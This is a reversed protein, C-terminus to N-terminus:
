RHHRKHKRKGRCGPQMVPKASATKGNQGAFRVNARNVRGCLNRSNVILGKKAGQMRLLVKSIPADPADEVSARIGGHVSDIRTAVEVDVLGHLDFVLDPLKHNSSRLYVPGQLPEDLLPTWARIYGYRAAKPCNKAAFQVRTCITRIHAQDLFASSPLRVTLGKLNANGKKPTYIAKLGPHAGRRTGGKLKLALHPKFGLNACNAAQFRTALDVPVDDGADLVNLYSGFLTARASSDACNTPNLIFDPRDVYVRLDRLRLPIGALIHPIPDSASGDVEVEATKPNLTLAEQVVVTGVDFPGAKAPTIAIASLPDGNLPGGLYVKGGVYTLVSGVGAGALSRGIESNAPCSPNALEETASKAKAAAIASTPCKDLGALKGLVGPPLVTSFRTMGQEGDNRTLRMDFETHSGADNNISGAQFEPHFPPVGGKPCAGGDVGRQVTFTSKRTIVEDLKPNDPDQASWPTFKAVIDYDGCAPPTVLPARGGERFHLDFSDFPLQPADDFTTVLQGTNPDPEVKGALKVLVGRDPSRAVIYLALLSDFPNDYPKALYLAGKVQEDILPTQIQVNGIKAADPCGEGPISDYRERAYDVPSCTALGEAASPNLTMGDPLTVEVKKPQAEAIGDKSLLGTNPMALSFDLGTGNEALKSTPAASISPAFPLKNCGSLKGGGFAAESVVSGPPTNWPEIRAGYDLATVCSVPQRLFANEGLSASRECPGLEEGVKYACNWGRSSDHRPDGPVGWLTVTSSLVQALQTANSVTATVRYKDDPDVATDIVIPNGVLMMGFRAPEGPRPPLNFVPVAERLLGLLQVEVVTASTVGVASEAPCHNVFEDRALFVAMPCKEVATANGVFGVPLPFSLDRPLAPQEVGKERNIQRGSNLQITTSTQFPHAGAQTAPAGGEEEAQAAFREIGFPTPDPSVAIKQASSAKPANGGSVTIKGPAVASPPSETLGVPIEVEIGEYSPLTGEYTCVVKDAAELSCEVPGFKDQAGAVADAGFAAVGPPLEDVITVPNATADLPADGLNTLTAVLLGSGGQSLVKANFTGFENGPEQYFTIAPAGSAPVTVKFPAVGVPGGTVEVSPGLPGELVAEFQSATESVPFGFSVPCFLEGPFGNTALCGVPEGGVDIRAAAGVFPGLEGLTVEIEQVNDTAEWLNSPRSGDLVQWWPSTASASAIPLLALMAFVAGLTAAITALRKPMQRNEKSLRKGAAPHIGPTSM